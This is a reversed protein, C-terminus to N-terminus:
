CWSRRLYILYKGLPYMLNLPWKKKCCGVYLSPSKPSTMSLDETSSLMGLSRVERASMHCPLSKIVDVKAKDVEIGKSSVVHGLILEQDVIFNCKEYNLILNYKLCRKLVHTLNPLNEEFSDSYVTFDDMFVEIIREVLDFFINFIYWQFTGLANCLGFHM